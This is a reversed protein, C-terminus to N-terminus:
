FGVAERESHHFGRAWCADVGARGMGDWSVRQVTGKRYRLGKTAAARGRETGLLRLARHTGGGALVCERIEGGRVTMKEDRTTYIQSSVTAGM